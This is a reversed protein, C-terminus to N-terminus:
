IEQKQRSKKNNDKSVSTFANTANGLGLRHAANEEDYAIQQRQIVGEYGTATEKTITM